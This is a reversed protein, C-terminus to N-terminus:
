IKEENANHDPIFMFIIELFFAIICGVGFLAPFISLMRMICMFFYSYKVSTIIWLWYAFYFAGVAFSVILCMSILFILLMKKNRM